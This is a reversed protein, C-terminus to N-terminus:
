AFKRETEMRINFELKWLYLDTEQHIFDQNYKRKKSIHSLLSTFHATFLIEHQSFAIFFAWYIQSSLQAPFVCNNNTPHGEKKKVTWAHLRWESLATVREM